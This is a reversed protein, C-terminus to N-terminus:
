FLEVEGESRCEIPAADPPFLQVTPPIMIDFCLSFDWARDGFFLLYSGPRHALSFQVDRSRVATPLSASFDVGEVCLRTKIRGLLQNALEGVWDLLDPVSIKADAGQPHIKEFLRAPGTIVVSGRLTGGFGIFGAVHDEGPVRFAADARPEISLGRCEFVDVCAQRVHVRLKDEDAASM